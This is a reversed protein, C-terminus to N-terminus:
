PAAVTMSCNTLSISPWTPQAVPKRGDPLSRSCRRKSKRRKSRCAGATVSTGVDVTITTLLDLDRTQGHIRHGAPYIEAFIRLEGLGLCALSIQARNVEALLRFRVEAEGDRTSAAAGPNRDGLNIELENQVDDRANM